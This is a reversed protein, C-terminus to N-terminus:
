KGTHPYKYNTLNKDYVYDIAITNKNIFLNIILFFLFPFFNKQIKRM